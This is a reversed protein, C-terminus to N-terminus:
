GTPVERHVAGHMRRLLLDAEADSLEADLLPVYLSEEVEVFVPGPREESCDDALRRLEEVHSAFTQHEAFLARSLTTM